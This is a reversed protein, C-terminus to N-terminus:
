GLCALWPLYKTGQKLAVSLSTLGRPSFRSDYAPLRAVSGAFVKKEKRYKINRAKRESGRPTLFSDKVTGSGKTQPGTWSIGKVTAPDHNGRSVLWGGGCRKRGNNDEKALSQNESLSSCEKM